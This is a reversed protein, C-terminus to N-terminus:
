EIKTVSRNFHSLIHKKVDDHRGDKIAQLILRHEAINQNRDLGEHQHNYIVVMYLRNFFSDYLQNLTSNKLAKLMTVDFAISLDAFKYLSEPSHDDLLQEQQELYSEMSAIVEDLVGFAVCQEYSGMLLVTATSKVEDFIVEDIEIVSPGANPKFVVLRENELISLAERIPSNSVELEQSLELMNIKEGFGYTQNLIRERLLEYVQHKMSTKKLVAM